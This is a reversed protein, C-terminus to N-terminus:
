FNKITKKNLFFNTTNILIKKTLFNNTSTRIKKLINSFNNIIKNSNLKIPSNIQSTDKKLETDKDYNFKVNNSVNNDIELINTNIIMNASIFTNITNNEYKNKDFNYDNNIFKIKNTNINVINSYITTKDLYVISGYKPDGNYGVNSNNIFFINDGKINIKSNPNKTSTAIAGGNKGTNNEFIVTGICILNLNNKSYIAGGGMSNSPIRGNKLTINILTLTASDNVINFIRMKNVVDICFGKGDIILDHNIKFGGMDMPNDSYGIIDQTLEIYNYPLLKVNYDYNEKDNAMKFREFNIKMLEEFQKFSDIQVIFTSNNCITFGNIAGCGYNNDFELCKSNTVFYSDYINITSEPHKRTHYIANIYKAENDKFTCNYINLTNTSYIAGGRGANYTITEDIIAKNSKFICNFANIIGQSYIAGGGYLTSKGNMLILNNLTLTVMDNKITFIRCLNNGNIFHGNGNITLNKNIILGEDPILNGRFENEHIIEIDSFSVIYDKTLNIENNNDILEKLEIFNGMYQFNEENINNETISSSLININSNQEIINNDDTINNTLEFDNANVNSCIILSLSIILMILIIKKIKFM